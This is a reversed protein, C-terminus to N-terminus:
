GNGVGPATEEAKWERLVEVLEDTDRARFFYSRGRKPRLFVGPRLLGFALPAGKLVGLGLWARGFRRMSIEAVDARTLVRSRWGRTKIRLHDDFVLLKRPGSTAILTALALMLVFALAAAAKQLLYGDVSGVWLDLARVVGEGGVRVVALLAAVTGLAYLVKLAEPLQFRAVYRIERMRIPRTLWRALAGLTLAILAAVAAVALGQSMPEVRAITLTSRSEDFLDRAFSAVEAQTLDEYFSLVDPFDAFTDPDYFTTRTWTNLAEATRNAARLREVLAARDAEFETPDHGGASLTEVEEDIVAVAFDFDDEDIRSFIELYSAPGRAVRRVSAGYVAKREGYRLRQNLRRALLDRVFLTTLVDEASAHFMKHRSRYSAASQFGWGYSSRGKGPDRVELSWPTRPRAPVAGFTREAVAFASDRDLDGVVTVTIAEPAYHRDYFERLDSPAVSHLSRWRDVNPPRLRPLGFEREWFDPATLWGPTLAAGLHDFLERPRAGIENLVPQRGRAVVEPEMAHPSMLDAMWEIAFLGHERAITVYYWTRDRYTFGNRRGGLGEVADKIEQETKGKHDSFLMHETFHALQEKGPPDADSGVPVGASVSVNPAGELRKFWIKLGNSLRRTEFGAFPNDPQPTPTQAGAVFAPAAFGAFAVFALVSVCSPRRRLRRRGGAGAGGAASARRVGVPSVAGM